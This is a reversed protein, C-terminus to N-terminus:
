CNYFYDCILFKYKPFTASISFYTRWRAKVTTPIYIQLKRTVLMDIYPPLEAFEPGIRILGTATQLLNFTKDLRVGQGLGSGLVSGREGFISSAAEENLRAAITCTRMNRMAESLRQSWNHDWYAEFIFTSSLRSLERM